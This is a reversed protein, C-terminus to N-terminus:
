AYYFLSIMWLSILATFSAVGAVLRMLRQSSFNFRQQNLALLGALCFPIFYRGQIGASAEFCRNAVGAQDGACTADSFFIVVHITLVALLFGGLLIVREYIGLPKCLRETAAVFILLLLYPIRLALPLRFKAWGFAGIFQAIYTNMNLQILDLINRLVALPHHVIMRTNAPMDIGRALRAIRLEELNAHNMMQWVALTVVLGCAGAAIYALYRRKSSFQSSSVLFIFPLAWISAKCLGWVAFFILLGLLYRRDVKQERTRFVLAFGLISVAITVADGSIGGTQHLTMPMLAVAAILAPFSRSVHFALGLAVLVFLVNAVRGMYMMALPTFRLVRAALIGLSAPLYVIPCYINAGRVAWQLYRHEADDRVPESNSNSESVDRATSEAALERLSVRPDPKFSWEPYRRVFAMVPAPLQSDPHGIFEGRSILYARVFHGHEDNLQLPPMLVAFATAFLGFLALVAITTSDSHHKQASKQPLVTRRSAGTSAAHSRKQAIGAPNLDAGGSWYIRASRCSL